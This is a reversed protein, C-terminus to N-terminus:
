TVLSRRTRTPPRQSPSRSGPRWAMRLLLSIAISSPVAAGWGFRPGPSRNELFLGPQGARAAQLRRSRKRSERQRRALCATRGSFIWCGHTGFFGVWAVIVVRNVLGRLLKGGLRPDRRHGSVLLEVLFRDVLGLDEPRTLRVFQDPLFRPVLHEIPLSREGFPEVASFDIDTLVAHVAVGVSRAAVLGGDDPLALGAVLADDGVALQFALDATEGVHKLFFADLLAVAHENVHRHDRLGRKGHEGAGADPGHVVDNEAPKGRLGDDIAEFVGAGGGHDGRVASPPAALHDRELRDDILRQRFVLVDLADDDHLAAFVLHGHFRDAIRPPVLFHRENGPFVRGLAEIGLVREEHEVGGAGGALRLADEVSGAAVEDAGVGGALVDEVHTVLIDVPAGGIDAPDGAM